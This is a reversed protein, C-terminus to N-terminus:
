QQYYIISSAMSDDFHFEALISSGYKDAMTVKNPKILRIQCDTTCISLSSNFTAHSVYCWPRKPKGGFSFRIKFDLLHRQKLQYGQVASSTCYLLQACFRWRNSKMVVGGFNSQSAISNFSLWLFNHVKSVLTSLYPQDRRQQACNSIAAVSTTELSFHIM